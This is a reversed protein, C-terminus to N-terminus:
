PQWRQVQAEVALEPNVTGLETLEDQLEKTEASHDPRTCAAIAFVAIVAIQILIYRSKRM